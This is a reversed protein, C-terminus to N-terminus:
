GGGLHPLPGVLSILHVPRQYLNAGQGNHSRDTIESQRVTGPAPDNQGSTDRLTDRVEEARRRCALSKDRTPEHGVVKRIARNAQQMIRDSGQDARCSMELMLVSRGAENALTAHHDRHCANLAEAAPIVEETLTAPLARPHRSRACPGGPTRSPSRLCYYSGGAPMM